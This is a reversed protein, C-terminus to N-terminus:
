SIPKYEKKVIEKTLGKTEAQQEFYNEFLTNILDNESMNYFEALEKVKNNSETLEAIKELKRDYDMGKQVYTKLEDAPIDKLKKVDHLFKIELDELRFTYEVNEPETETTEEVEEEETEPAEDETLTTEEEEDPTLEDFLTEEPEESFLQLNFKNILRHNSKM